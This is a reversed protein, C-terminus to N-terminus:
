FQVSKILLSNRVAGLRRASMRVFSRAVSRSRTAYRKYCGTCMLRKPMPLDRAGQLRSPMVFKVDSSSLGRRCAYCFNEAMGREREQTECRNCEVREMGNKMLGGLRM